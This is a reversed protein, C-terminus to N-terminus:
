CFPQEDQDHESNLHEIIKQDTVAFAYGGLDHLQVWAHDDVGLHQPQGSIHKALFAHMTIRFHTYAHEVVTLRRGVEISIGLEERIERHLAEPLSENEEQKGGPFEWLGGLLGDVPRKTILFRGDQGCIVGATVQYHPLKKRAARVPRETQTGRQLALCHSSIPCARCNPQKPLCVTQGLEMMAQNFDGPRAAPLLNEAVQWLKKKTAPKAIDDPLDLLRSLIRTANGDVAATPLDYAISAIAGATYRGVGKLEMLGSVSDPMLGQRDRVIAGAASHLNRARSYYGLGEWVKLVDDLSAEALSTVTPFREMWRQYYPLVTVIQTQQLMVEAIWITYPDKSSRWPWDLHGEDWWLLLPVVIRDIM